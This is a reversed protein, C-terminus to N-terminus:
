VYRTYNAGGYVVPVSYHLLPIMLKTTVYDDDMVDEFVLFFYYQSEVLAECTEVNDIGSNCNLNGCEGIVDLTLNYKSLEDTLKLIFKELEGHKHCHSSMWAVATKKKRLKSKVYDSIPKMKEPDKWNMNVNPGIINGKKDKIVYSRLPINSNLKYTATMNFFYKYKYIKPIVTKSAPESSLFVYRQNNSRKPPNHFYYHAVNFLIIDFERVDSFYTKNNSYFCNQHLCHKNVFTDQGQDRCSFPADDTNEKKWSLIYILSDDKVNVTTANLITLIAVQLLIIYEVSKSQLYMVENLM